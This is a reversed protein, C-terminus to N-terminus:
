DDEKKMAKIKKDLDDLVERAIESPSKSEKMVRLRRENAAEKTLEIKGDAIQTLIRNEFKQDVRPKLESIMNELFILYTVQVVPKFAKPNKLAGLAEKVLSEIVPEWSEQEELETRIPTIVKEIMFDENSRSYVAQLGEKLPITKDGKEKRSEAVKKQVLKSM